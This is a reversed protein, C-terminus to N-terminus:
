DSLNVTKNNCGGNHVCESVYCCLKNIVSLDVSRFCCGAAPTAPTCIIHPSIRNTSEKKAPQALTVIRGCFPVFFSLPYFIPTKVSALRSFPSIKRANKAWFAWKRGFNLFFIWWHGPSQQKNFHESFSNYSNHENVFPSSYDQQFRQLNECTNACM